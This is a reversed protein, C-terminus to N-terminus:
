RRKAMMVLLGVVVLAVLCGVVGIAIYISSSDQQPRFHLLCRLSCIRKKQSKLINLLLQHSSITLPIKERYICASTGQVGTGM